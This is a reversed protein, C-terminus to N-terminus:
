KVKELSDLLEKAEGKLNSLKTITEPISRLLNEFERNEGEMFAVALKVASEHKISLDKLKIDHIIDNLRATIEYKRRQQYELSNIREGSQLYYRFIRRRLESEDFVHIWDKNNQYAFRSERLENLTSFWVTQTKEWDELVKDYLILSHRLDDSIATKLLRRASALRNKERRLEFLYGTGAALFAGVFTSVVITWDM